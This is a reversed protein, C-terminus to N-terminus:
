NGQHYQNSPEPLINGAPCLPGGSRPSSLPAPRPQHVVSIFKVGERGDCVCVLVCVCVYVYVGVCIRVGIFVCTCAGVCVCVCLCEYVFICECVLVACQSMCVCVSSSVCLCVCVCVCVCVSRAVCLCVCVCVCVCVCIGCVKAESRDLILFRKWKNTSALSDKCHERGFIYILQSLCLM